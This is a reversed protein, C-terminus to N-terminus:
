NVPGLYKDLWNLVENIAMNRPVQHGSEYLVHRKDETPTGLLEFMPRQSSELPFLHDYRGNLMLVPMRIRPAFHFPDVEPFTEEYHLGGTLIIATKFRTNSRRSSDVSSGVGVSAM